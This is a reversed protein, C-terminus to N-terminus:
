PRRALRDKELRKLRPADTRWENILWEIFSQIVPETRREKRCAVWYAGAEQPPTAFPVVLSEAGPAEWILPLLGLMVGRGQVAAEIAAPITDVILTRKPEVCATGAGALWDPWGARGVSLGILTAERLDSPERLAEALAPACLPTARVDMLKRVFLGAGPASVNRIAVDAEGALLDYIRADTHIRLSLAPHLAEFRAIRPSMWSTSFLPLTAVKLARAQNARQAAELAQDIAGFAGNLAASLAAGQPTLRVARVGREFLPAGIWAEVAKVQHSVASPTVGLDLAADRFSQRRGAAAFAELSAFTPRKPTV